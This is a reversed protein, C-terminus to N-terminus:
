TCEGDDPACMAFSTSYRLMRISSTVDPSISSIRTSAQKEKAEKWSAFRRMVLSSSCTDDMSDFNTPTCAGHEEKCQRLMDLIEEDSYKQSM